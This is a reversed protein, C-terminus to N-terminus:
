LKGVSSQLISRVGVALGKQHTLYIGLINVMDKEVPAAM